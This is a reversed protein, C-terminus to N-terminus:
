RIGIKGSNAIVVKTITRAFDPHSALAHLMDDSSIALTNQNQITPSFSPSFAAAAGAFGGGVLGGDAYGPMPSGTNIHRKMEYFWGPGKKNVEPSTFVYENKHVIGAPDYRAGAGTYGGGAFGFIKAIGGLFSADGGGGFLQSLMGGLGQGSSGQLASFMENEFQKLVRKALSGFISSLAGGISKIASEGMAMSEVIGTLSGALDQNISTATADMTTRLKDYELRARAATQAMELNQPSAAALAELAKVQAYISEATKLREERVAREGEIATKQGQEVALAIREEALSLTAVRDDALRKQETFDLQMQKLQGQRTVLAEMDAKGRVRPDNMMDQIEKALKGSASGLPNGEMDMINTKIDVQLNEIERRFAEQDMALKTDIVIVKNDLAKLEAAVKRLDGELKKKKAPDTKEAEIDKSLLDAQRQAAAREEALAKKDLAAKQKLYNEQSVLRAQLSKALETEAVEKLSQSVKKQAATEADAYARLAAAYAEAEKKAKDGDPPGKKGSATGTAAAKQGRRAERQREADQERLEKGTKSLEVNVRAVATRGADFDAQIGKAVARLGAGSAPISKLVGDVAAALGTGIGPIQALFDRLAGIVTRLPGGVKDLIYGGVDALVGKWLQLGDQILAVGLAVARFAERVIGTEVAWNVVAATASIITKLVDKVSDYVVGFINKIVAVEDAHQNFWASLDKALSIGGSIADNLVTGVADFVSTGVDQLDKFSDAVGVNKMDFAEALGTQITQKLSDFSGKSMEGLLLSFADGVNSLTATWTKGSEPGLAKFVELKKNLNEALTGTERWGDVQKKTIGLAKAVTSDSSIDGSLLSRVEQNLQHMPMGLAGAAQAIGITLERVKELSLGASAGAGIGQQFAGLLEQFSASTELGAIRLKKIEDAAVTGSIALKDNMDTVVKGSSDKVTTLAAVLSKVGLTASETEANVNLGKLFADKVANAALAVVAFKAALLGLSGISASVGSQIASTPDPIRSVGQLGALQRQFAQVQQIAAATQADITFSLALPSTAM